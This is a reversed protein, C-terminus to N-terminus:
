KEGVSPTSNRLRIGGRLRMGGSSSSRLRVGGQLLITRLRIGDFEGGLRIGFVFHGFVFEGRRSTWLRIGGRLRTGFVFEGILYKASVLM